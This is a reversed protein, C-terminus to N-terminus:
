KGEERGALQQGIYCGYMLYALAKRNEENLMPIMIQINTLPDDTLNVNKKKSM